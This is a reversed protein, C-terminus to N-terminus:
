VDNTSSKKMFECLFAKTKVFTIGTKLMFKVDGFCKENKQSNENYFDRVIERVSSSIFTSLVEYKKTRLRSHSVDEDNM